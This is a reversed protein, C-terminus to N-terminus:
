RWRTRSSSSGAGRITCRRRSRCCWGPRWRGGPTWRSTTARHRMLFPVEHSILGMGHVFFDTVGGNPGARMVELARAGVEGGSGGARVEAFAAQQVAEIEALLDELEADPEGLVGMRALDGIYGDLNGGLDISLM